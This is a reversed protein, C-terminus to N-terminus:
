ECLKSIRNVPQYDHEQQNLRYEFVYADLDYGPYFNRAVHVARFGCAAFFKQAGLNYESVETVIKKRRNTSLKDILKHVLMRGTSRRRHKPHVALNVIRLHNKHLEYLCYGLITGAAADQSDVTEEVVLGICNRQRLLHIFEQETWPHDYSLNEICGVEAMDRRIMWRINPAKVAVDM